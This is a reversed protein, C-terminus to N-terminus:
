SDKCILYMGTGVKFLPVITICLCLMGWSLGGILFVDLTLFMLVLEALCFATLTLYKFKKM